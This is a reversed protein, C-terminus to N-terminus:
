LHSNIVRQRAGGNASLIVSSLSTKASLRDIGVISPLTKKGLAWRFVSPLVCASSLSNSESLTPQIRLFDGFVNLLHCALFPTTHLTHQRILPGRFSPTDGLDFLFFFVQVGKASGIPDHPVVVVLKQSSKAVIHEFGPSTMAADVKFYADVRISFTVRPLNGLPTGYM